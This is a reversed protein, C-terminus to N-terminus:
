VQLVELARHYYAVRQGWGLPDRDSELLGRNWALSVARINGMDAYPALDVIEQNKLKANRFFWCASRCAPDVEKLQFPNNLLDLGLAAGVLKYNYYGTTQGYGRGKFYDGVHVGAAEALSIAEPETNGLDERDDYISCDKRLEEPWQFEGSEHCVQGLFAAARLPSDMTFEELSANLPEVVPEIISRPAVKAIRRLQELTIQM